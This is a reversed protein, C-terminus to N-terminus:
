VVARPEASATRLRFASKRRLWGILAIMLLYVLPVPLRQLEGHLLHTVVAATMVTMLLLAAHTTLRPVLLAMGGIAEVVGVVMYFGDPYGWRAFSRAWSPDQFKMVGVLVFMVGIVIQLTWVAITKIIRV